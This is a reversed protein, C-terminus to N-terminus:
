TNVRMMGTADITLAASCAIAVQWHRAVFQRKNCKIALWSILLGSGSRGIDEDCIGWRKLIFTKFPPSFACSIVFLVEFHVYNPM